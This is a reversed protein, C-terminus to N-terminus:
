LRLTFGIFLLGLLAALPGTVWGVRRARRLAAPLSQGILPSRMIRREAVLAPLRYGLRFLLALFVLEAAPRLWDLPSM